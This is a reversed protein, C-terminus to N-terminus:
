PDSCQQFLCSVAFAIDPRTGYAIYLLKGIPRQYATIDIPDSDNDEELTIYSGPVM